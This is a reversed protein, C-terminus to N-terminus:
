TCAICNCSKGNWSTVLKKFQSFNSCKRFHEPLFNWLVPAAYRFSNKGATTTRVSPIQLINSYRFSIVSNKKVILNSLVPPSMDHFIKFTEIAMSKIRRLKLTPLNIKTLMDDYSSNYDSYVFRLAREQLKEMKKTNAESCFHWSMPCFNFNSLVFSHFVTLRNTQNLNQGIRKLINLQTAAKKCLNSIHQNFNLQQDIDIGLLKVTEDCLIESSNIM